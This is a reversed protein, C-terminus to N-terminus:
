ALLDRGQKFVVKGTKPSLVNTLSFYKEIQAVMSVNDLFVQEHLHPKLKLYVSVLNRAVPGQLNDPIALYRCWINCRDRLSVGTVFDRVKWDCGIM